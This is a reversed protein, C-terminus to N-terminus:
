EDAGVPQYQRHGWNRSRGAHNRAERNTQKLQRLLARCVLLKFWLVWLGLPQLDPTDTEERDESRPRFIGDRQTRRAGTGTGRSILVDIM